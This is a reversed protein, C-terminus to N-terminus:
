KRKKKLSPFKREGEKIIGKKVFYSEIIRVFFENRSRFKKSENNIIKVLRKPLRVSIIQSDEERPRGRKRM